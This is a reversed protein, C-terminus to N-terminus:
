VTMIDKKKTEAMEDIKKNADDVKSQLKADAEHWSDETLENNAKMTKFVNHFDQRGTRVAIRSEEALKLVHKSLELRREETLPPFNIRICVGDNTPNLGLGVGVIGKEVAQLVTRDWPTIQITRPEPIAISAVAKIPQMGGYVEVPINEVIASNARGIQLRNFQEQLHAAIKTFEAVAQNLVDNSNM